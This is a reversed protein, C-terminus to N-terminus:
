ENLVLVRANEVESKITLLPEYFDCIILVILIAVM